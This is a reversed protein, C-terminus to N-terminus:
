EDTPQSNDPRTLATSSMGFLYGAIAGLIGFASAVNTNVVLALLTTFCAVLVIGLVRLNNPGFGGKMNRIAMITSVLGIVLVGIIAISYNDFAMDDGQPSERSIASIDCQPRM